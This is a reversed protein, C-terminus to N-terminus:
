KSKPIIKLILFNPPYTLIMNLNKQKVFPKFSIKTHKFIIFKMDWIMFVVKMNRQFVLCKIKNSIKNIEQEQSFSFGGTAAEVSTTSTKSM